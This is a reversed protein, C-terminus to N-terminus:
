LRSPPQASGATSSQRAWQEVAALRRGGGHQQGGGTGGEGGGRKLMQTVDDRASRFNRRFQILSKLAYKPIIIVTNRYCLTGNVPKMILSEDSKEQYTNSVRDCSKTFM